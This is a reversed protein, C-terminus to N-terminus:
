AVRKETIHKALAAAFGPYTEARLAARDPSPPLRNQGSDTQNKWREVMKGSGRPWEERRGLCRAAPDITLKPVNVLWLCTAKSADDGFQNPQIIQDPKRIATSLCGILNEMIIHPFPANLIRRCDEIADATHMWRPRGDPGLRGRKNWHLGAVTLYTCDPHAIM